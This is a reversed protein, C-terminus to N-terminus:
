HAFRDRLGPNGLTAVAKGLQECRAARKHDAEIAAAASLAESLRSMTARLEHRLMMEEDSAPHATLVKRLRPVTQELLHLSRTLHAEPESQPERARARHACDRVSSVFNDIDFPKRLLGFISSRDIKCLERENIGTAVIVRQLASRNTSRLIDLVDFGNVGGMMLDLVIVDYSRLAIHDLAQAGDAVSDVSFGQRELLTKFLTQLSRDDEVVLVSSPSDAVAPYEREFM